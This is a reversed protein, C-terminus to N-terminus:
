EPKQNPSILLWPGSIPCYLNKMEYIFFITYQAWEVKKKFPLNASSKLKILVDM